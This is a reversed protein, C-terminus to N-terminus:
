KSGVKALINLPKDQKILQLQEENRVLLAGAFGLSNISISEYKEQSRPIVKIWEQTILLNYDQSAKNNINEIALDRLIQRYYETTIEAIEETTKSLIDPLFYMIRHDYKLTNIKVKKDFERHELILSNFPINHINDAFFEPILQLHKHPQSAGSLTGCNYFGLGKIQKLLTWLAYFDNYNLIDNQSEFARTIILCHHDVVNYKNLIALHTDSIDGVFLDEEYPLFPNFNPDKKQTKNQEKKAKDKRNLNDVIRIIFPINNEELIEYYNPISHLAELQIAKETALTIKQWWNERILEM